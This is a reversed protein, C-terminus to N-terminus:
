SEGRTIQELYLRMDAHNLRHTTALLKSREQEIARLEAEQRAQELQLSRMMNQSQQYAVQVRLLEDITQTNAAQPETKATNIVYLALLFGMLVGLIFIFLPSVNM